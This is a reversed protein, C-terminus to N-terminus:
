LLGIASRQMESCGVTFTSVSQIFTDKIKGSYQKMFPHLVKAHMDVTTEHRISSSIYNAKLDLLVASYFRQMESKYKRPIACASKGEDNRVTQLSPM